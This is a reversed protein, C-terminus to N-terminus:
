RKKNNRRNIAFIGRNERSGTIGYILFEKYKSDKIKNFAAKQEETLELPKDKKVTRGQFPNRIIREDVIKIFGIEELNLLTKRTTKLAKELELINISNNKALFKLIEEQRKTLKVKSNANEENLYVVKETKEKIRADLNKSTSGPPLMLKICESINCFYRRAMLKAFNIDEETLITDEIKIIEKTAFRSTEKLNIIYGEEKKNRLPVFVRNGIKVSEELKKPVIYDLNKNLSIANTNIIVEAIM